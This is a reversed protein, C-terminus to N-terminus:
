LRVFSWRVPLGNSYPMVGHFSRNDGDFVLPLFYRDGDYFHVGSRERVLPDENTAQIVKELSVWHLTGEENDSPTIGQWQTVLFVFGFWDEGNPGFGPWSITGRLGISTADINAEERLERQAGSVVDEDAQVKGGLGNWMGFQEDESRATRHVLLVSQSATDLVYVLTGLIPTYRVSMWRVSASDVRSGLFAECRRLM